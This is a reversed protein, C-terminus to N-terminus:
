VGGCGGVWGVSGVGRVSGWVLEGVGCEGVGM